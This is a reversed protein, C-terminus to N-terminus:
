VLPIGDIRRRRERERQIREINAAPSARRTEEPIWGEWQAADAALRNANYCEDDVIENRRAWRRIPEIMRRFIGVGSTSQISM